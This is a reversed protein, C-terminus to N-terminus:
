LTQLVRIQAGHFSIRSARSVMGARAVVYDVCEAEGDMYGDEFSETDAEGEADDSEYEADSFSSHLVSERHATPAVVKM